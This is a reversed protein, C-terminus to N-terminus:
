ARNYKAVVKNNLRGEVDYSRAYQKCANQIKSIVQKRSKGATLRRVNKPTVRHVICRGGEETYKISIKM